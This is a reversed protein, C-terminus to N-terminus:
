RGKAISYVKGTAVVIAHALPTRQKAGFVGGTVPLDDESMGKLSLPTVRPKGETLTGTKDVVLTDVKEM